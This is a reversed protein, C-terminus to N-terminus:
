AIFAIAAMFAMFGHLLLSHALDGLPFHCPGHNETSGLCLGSTAQSCAVQHLVLTSLNHGLLAECSALLCVGVDLAPSYCDLLCPLCEVHLAEDCDLLASREVLLGLLEEVSCKLM